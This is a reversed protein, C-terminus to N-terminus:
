PTARVVRGSAGLASLAARVDIRRFTQGNRADTVAVGSGKLAAELQDASTAPRAQLLLAAAGAAHPCAQSTGLFTSAGGGLGTSTIPAGPALLDLVSSANSFCTVRDAGTSGDSCLGAFAQGGVDGDYVAGVAVASSVCGPFALSTAQGNNGSSAFVLVGRGRLASFASSFATTFSAASDCAGPFLSSTGLSLNVIRVDPRTRMVYDLGSLIQATSSFSGDRAVVKLSVISADPAMGRPASSGNGTIIGTVNTGHGNDDQAAGAGAQEGSGNPCCNPQCFCHEDVISDGLDRHGRDAGTDLVAVTVGQGTFGSEHAENARTLATSEALTTRGGIDLDVKLVDRDALARRLGEASLDGALAPITDWQESLRFGDGLRALVGRRMEVIEAARLALETPPTEPERLAIIVRAWPREALRASLSAGAVQSGARAAPGPAASFAAMVGALGLLARAAPRPLIPM